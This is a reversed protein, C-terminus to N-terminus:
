SNPQSAAPGHQLRNLIGTDLQAVQRVEGRLDSALQGLRNLRDLVQAPAQQAGSALDNAQQALGNLLDDLSITVGIKKSVSVEIYEYDDADDPV